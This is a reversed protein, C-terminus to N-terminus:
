LSLRVGVFARRGIQDYNSNTSGIASNTSTRGVWEPDANFVNDISARIQWRQKFTWSGYVDFQDHSEIPLATAQSSLEPDVSPLHQWRVGVSLPGKRWGATSFLRYDFSSNQATGKYDIFPAGPFQSESYHDLVSAELQVDFNGIGWDVHIDYGGSEIRGENVYQADYKRDAGFNGPTLPGGGVYERRIRGCFPNGAALEAGTYTGPASGILPNYKADMCRQYVADHAPAGIARDLAIKYWDIVISLREAFKPSIVVGATYTDASESELKSNGEQAAVAFPYYSTLGFVNYAYDNASSQGPVYLSAPAGERTMLYQCLTQVNLRNPNGARNGWAQTSSVGNVIWNGCADTGGVLAAGGKPAFLEVINPARNARQYGGRFKIRGNVKLEGLLKYTTVKGVSGYDSYRAGPDIELRGQWLPVALEGYVERVDTKGNVSVPLVSNQVVNSYDQSAGYASDAQFTFEEHRSDVGAAFQLPGSRLSLITGTVVGEFINQELTTVSNMQLLVYASCDQSVSPTNNVSGDPNFIPLGSTCTGSVGTGPLRNLNFGTGYENATLLDQLRPLSAFGDPQYVNVNSKGHSVYVTWSWDADEIRFDSRLGGVIQYVDSTTDTELNGLYDLGGAYTWPADRTDSTTGRANLLAALEAPVPHLATQGPQLVGFQPSRPDDSLHNYPVTPSWVDTAASTTGKAVTYNEAFRVQSFVEVKDFVDIHGSGFLSYRELTGQLYTHQQDDYGLSGDPNIKFGSASGLSGAYPHAPDTPHQPNFVHGSQDIVYTGGAPLPFVAPYGGPPVRALQSLSSSGPVPGGMTGPDNWGRTVWERDKGLVADRKAFDVGIMVSGRGDAFSAGLLGNAMSENGDGQESAGAQVDVRVGEFNRKSIFNVVGAIADAGYVAAAGGTIIEVRDIAASPISNLDVVLSGNVPQARRGDLLVLSRSLGLGRLNITAAGPAATALPFLASAASTQAQSGAGTMNFQPLTDLTAEIGVNTRSTFADQDVTVIPLQSDFDRRPIRSGTVVIEEGQQQTPAGQACVSLEMAVELALAGALWLRRRAM